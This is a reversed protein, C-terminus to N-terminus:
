NYTRDMLLGLPSESAKEFQKIRKVAEYYRPELHKQAAKKELSRIAYIVKVKDTGWGKKAAIRAREAEVEAVLHKDKSLSRGKPCGKKRPRESVLQFGPIGHARAVEEILLYPDDRAVEYHDFLCDIRREVQADISAQAIDRKEFTEANDVHPLQLLRSINIPKNLLGTYIPKTLAPEPFRCL